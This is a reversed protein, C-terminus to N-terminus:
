SIVTYGSGILGKYLLILEPVVGVRIHRKRVLYLISYTPWRIYGSLYLICTHYMVDLRYFSFVDNANDYRSYLRRPMKCCSRCSWLSKGDCIGLVTCSIRLVVHQLCMRQFSLKMLVKQVNNLKTFVNHTCVNSHYVM